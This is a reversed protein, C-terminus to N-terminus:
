SEQYKNQARLLGVIDSEGKDGGQKKCVRLLLYHILFIDTPLQHVLHYGVGFASLMRINTMEEEVKIRM